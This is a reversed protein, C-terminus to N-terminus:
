FSRCNRAHPLRQDTGRRLAHSTRLFHLAGRTSRPEVPFFGLHKFFGYRELMAADIPAFCKVDPFLERSLLLCVLPDWWASHNLYIVLPRDLSRSPQGQKLVRLAHFHRRVYRRSYAAFVRMVQPSVRPQALSPAAQGATKM